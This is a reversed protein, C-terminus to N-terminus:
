RRVGAIKQMARIAADIKEETTFPGPSFRVTGNELTGLDEHVLPACQLGTRVAIDYDGDLIAGVDASAMGDVTCSLIPLHHQLNGAGYLNVGAIRGLGDRLKETLQMERAFNEALHAEVVTLSEDLGLIGLLNLTGM